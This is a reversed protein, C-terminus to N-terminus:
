LIQFSIHVRKKFNRSLGVEHHQEPLKMNDFIRFLIQFLDKWWHRKYSEGYTKIIEFMVQLVAVFLAHTNHRSGFSYPRFEVFFSVTLARTRVDLKCRSVICSLEFLIPFWGRVWIRDAEAVGLEEGMSHEM